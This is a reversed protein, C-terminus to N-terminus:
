PPPTTTNKKSPPPPLALKIKIPVPIKGIRSFFFSLLPFVSGAWNLPPKLCDGKQTYFHANQLCNERRLYLIKIKLLRSFPLNTKWFDRESVSEFRVLDIKASGVQVRDQLQGSFDSHELLSHSDGFRKPLQKGSIPWNQPIRSKQKCNAAEQKCHLKKVKQQCKLKKLCEGLQHCDSKGFCRLLVGCVWRLEWNPTPLLPDGRNTGIEGNEESKNRNAIRTEPIGRNTRIQESKSRKRGIQESKNESCVLVFWLFGKRGVAKAFRRM